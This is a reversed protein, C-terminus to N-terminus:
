GHRAESAGVTFAAADLVAWGVLLFACAEFGDDFAALRVALL